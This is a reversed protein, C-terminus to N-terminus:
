PRIRQLENRRQELSNRVSRLGTLEDLRRARAAGTVGPDALAREFDTIQRNILELQRVIATLEVERQLPGPEGRQLQFELARRESVDAASLRPDTARADDGDRMGGAFAVRPRAPRVARSKLPASTFPDVEPAADDAQPERANRMAEQWQEDTILLSAVAPRKAGVRDLRVAWAGTMVDSEVSRSNALDAMNGLKLTVTQAAGNRILTLRMEDGPDHSVIIYRLHRQSEVRLDDAAIIRDGDKLVRASDFGPVPQVIAPTDEDNSLAMNFSVGMAARPSRLFVEYGLGRLRQRQESSLAPDALAAEIQKVSLGARGLAETADERARFDTSDLSRILPALDPGLAAPRAADQAFLTISPVSCFAAFIGAYISRRKM